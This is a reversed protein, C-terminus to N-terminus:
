EFWQCYGQMMTVMISIKKKIKRYLRFNGKAATVLVLFNNESIAELEKLFTGLEADTNQYM